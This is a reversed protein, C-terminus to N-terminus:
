TTATKLYIPSLSQSNHIYAYTTATKLYFPSVIQSQSKINSSPKTATTKLYIPSLIKSKFKMHRSAYTVGAKLYIPSLIQSKVGFSQLSINGYNKSFKLPWDVGSFGVNQPIGITSQSWMKLFQLPWGVRIHDMNPSIAPFEGMKEVDNVHFPGPM